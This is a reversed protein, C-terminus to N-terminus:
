QRYEDQINCYKELRKLRHEIGPLSATQEPLAATEAKAPKQKQRSPAALWKGMGIAASAPLSAPWFFAFFAAEIEDNDKSIYKGNEDVRYGGEKPYPGLRAMRYGYIASTIVLQGFLSLFIILIIAIM